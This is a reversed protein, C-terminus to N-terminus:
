KPSAKRSKRLRQKLIVKEQSGEDILLCDQYFNNELSEFENFILPFNKESLQGSKIEKAMEGLTNKMSMIIWFQGYVYM